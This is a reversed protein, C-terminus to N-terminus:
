HRLSLFTPSKTNWAISEYNKNLEKGFPLIKLSTWVSLM